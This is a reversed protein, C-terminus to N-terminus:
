HVLCVWVWVAISVKVTAEGTGTAVVKVDENILDLQQIKFSVYTKMHM